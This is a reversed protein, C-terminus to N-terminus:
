ILKSGFAKETEESDRGSTTKGMAKEIRDLLRKARDIIFDDFNDSQLLDFNIKHSEIAEKVQLENLGKNYMTQIYDHPARGGISRNTSAYIPTKNVVSNFKRIPYKKKECYDYPFIHHIDTKEDLYTAVDMKNHTMFDLPVDQLILAMIGKYAASNRTQLSLLRTAQFSARVVTDPEIGSNLWNFFGTIDLVYRAENASGYLEGFVGCWYWKSLKDLNQQLSLKNGHLSDFAFITSLPVLQTSYPLDSSSFVGLHVLFDAAKNFGKILVDKYKSYSEYKLRMVDKKKCKAVGENNEQSAIYTSLLTMATLFATGDVDVLLNDKRSSFITKTKEWDERLNFHSAAFTATVLEFVNLPVGGTNVNEFIQCVSEKSTDKGVAIVPINYKIVPDIYKDWFENYLDSIHVDNNHYKCFNQGWKREESRDFFLSLPFMKNSYENERTTLDMTITRGIDETIQKKENISIIADDFLDLNPNMAKEIDVYYYRYIPTTDGTNRRTEVKDKSKFVQYLTTLRQQGDLVLQDPKTNKYTDSVGTFLRYSFNLNEPFYDLFMLAGMPFGKMISEILKRIKYDNWVWSRQFDPLQLKGNEIQKLLDDLSKDNSYVAM